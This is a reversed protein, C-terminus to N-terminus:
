EEQHISVTGEANIRLTTGDDLQVVPRNELYTLTWYWSSIDQNLRSLEREVDLVAQSVARVLNKPAATNVQWRTGLQM